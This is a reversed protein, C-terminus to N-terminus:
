LNIMFEGYTILRMNVNKKKLTDIFYDKYKEIYKYLSSNEDYVYAPYNTGYKELLKIGKAWYAIYNGYFMNNSDKEAFRASYVEYDKQLCYGNASEPIRYGARTLGAFLYYKALAAVKNGDDNIVYFDESKGTEYNCFSIVDGIEYTSKKPSYTCTESYKGTIYNVTDEDISDSKGVVGNNDIKAIIQNIDDGKIYTYNPNKNITDFDINKFKGTNTSKIIVFNGGEYATIAYEYDSNSYDLNQRLNDITLEENYSLMRKITAVAIDMNKDFAETRYKKIIGNVSMTAIVMIIALVVVVALLEVLTFGKKNNKM